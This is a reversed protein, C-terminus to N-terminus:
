IEESGLYLLQPKTYNCFNSTDYSHMNQVQSEFRLLQCLAIGSKEMCKYVTLKELPLNKRQHWTVETMDGKLELVM